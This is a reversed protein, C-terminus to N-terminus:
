PFPYSEFKTNLPQRWKRDFKNMLSKDKIMMANTKGEIAHMKQKIFYDYSMDMKHAVTKFHLEAIHNFTYGKDKFYAEDIKNIDIDKLSLAIHRGKDLEKDTSPKFHKYKFKKKINKDCVECYYDM